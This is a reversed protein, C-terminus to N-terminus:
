LLCLNGNPTRTFLNFKDYGLGPDFRFDKNKKPEFGFLYDICEMIYSKGTNAPGVIFNLGDCFEITSPKKGNGTVVLREIYLGAM